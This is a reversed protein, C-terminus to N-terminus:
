TPELTPNGLGWTIGVSVTDQRNSTWHDINDMHDTNGVTTLTVRMTQIVVQDTDDERSMPCLLTKPKRGLCTWFSGVFRTIHDRCCEVSGNGLTRQAGPNDPSAKTGGHAREAPLLDGGSFSPTGPYRSYPTPVCPITQPQRGWHAPFLLLPCLCFAYEKRRVLFARGKAFPWANSVEFAPFGLM